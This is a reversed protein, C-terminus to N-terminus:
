DTAIRPSEGRILMRESTMLVFLGGIVSVAWYWQYKPFWVPSTAFTFSFFDVATGAAAVCMLVVSAARPNEVSLRSSLVAVALPVVPLGFRVFRYLPTFEVTHTPLGFKIAELGWHLAAQAGLLSATYHLTWTMVNRSTDSSEDDLRDNALWHVGIAGGWLPAMAALGFWKWRAPIESTQAFWPLNRVYKMRLPENTTSFRRANRRVALM